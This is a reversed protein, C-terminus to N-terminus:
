GSAWVHLLFLGQVLSKPEFGPGGSVQHRLVFLERSAGRPRLGWPQLVPIKYYGIGLNRGNRGGVM